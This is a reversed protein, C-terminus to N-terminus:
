YPVDGPDVRPVKRGGSNPPSSKLAALLALAESKGKKGAATPPYSATEPPTPSTTNFGQYGQPIGQPLEDMPSEPLRMSDLKESKQLRRSIRHDKTKPTDSKRRPTVWLRLQGQAANKPADRWVIGHKILDEVVRRITWMSPGPRRKGREPQPPTCLDILRHYGGLFEGTDFDAHILILGFVHTATHDRLVTYLVHLEHEESRLFKPVNLAALLPM